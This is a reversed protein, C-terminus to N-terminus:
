WHERLSRRCGLGLCRQGGGGILRSLALQIVTLAGQQADVHRCQVALQPLVRPCQEEQFGEKGVYLWQLLVPGELNTEQEQVAEEGESLVRLGCIGHPVHFDHITLRRRAEQTVGRCLECCLSGKRSSGRHRCGGRGGSVRLQLKRQGNCLGTHVQGGSVICCCCLLHLCHFRHGGFMRLNREKTSLKLEEKAVRSHSGSGEHRLQLRAVGEVPWKEQAVKAVHVVVEALM